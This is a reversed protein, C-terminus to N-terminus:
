DESRKLSEFYGYRVEIAKYFELEGDSMIVIIANGSEEETIRWIRSEKQLEVIRM